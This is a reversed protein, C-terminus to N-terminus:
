KAKRRRDIVLTWIFRDKSERRHPPVWGFGDIRNGTLKGEFRFAGDTFSVEDGQQSWTGRSTRGERVSELVNESLFTIVYKGGQQWTSGDLSVPATSDAGNKGNGKADQGGQAAGPALQDIPEQSAAPTALAICSLLAFSRIM